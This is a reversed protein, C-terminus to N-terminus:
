YERDPVVAREFIQSVDGRRIRFMEAEGEVPMLKGLRQLKAYLPPYSGKTMDLARVHLMGPEVRTIVCPIAAGYMEPAGWRFQVIVEKGLFLNPDGPFIHDDGAPDGLFELVGHCGSLLCLVLAAAVLKRCRSRTSM